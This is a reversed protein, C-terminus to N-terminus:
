LDVEETDELQLELDRHFAMERYDMKNFLPFKSTM